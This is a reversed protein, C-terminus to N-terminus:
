QKLINVAEDLLRLQPLIIQKEYKVILGKKIFSGRLAIEEGSKLLNFDDSKKNGYMLYNFLWIDEGIIPKDRFFRVDFHRELVKVFQKDTLKVYKILDTKFAECQETTLYNSVAHFIIIRPLLVMTKTKPSNIRTLKSKLFNQLQLILFVLTLLTM